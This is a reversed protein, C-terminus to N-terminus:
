LDTMAASDPISMKKFYNARSQKNELGVGKTTRDMLMGSSFLQRVTVGVAEGPGDTLDVQAAPYGTEARMRNVDVPLTM